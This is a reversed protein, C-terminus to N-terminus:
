QSRTARSWQAMEESFSVTFVIQDTPKEVPCALHVAALYSLRHEEVQRPRGNVIIDYTKNKGPAKEAQENSM